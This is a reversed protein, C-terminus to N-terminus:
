IINKIFKKNPELGMGRGQISTAREELVVVMTITKNLENLFSLQDRIKPIFFSSLNSKDHLTIAVLSAKILQSLKLKTHYNIM